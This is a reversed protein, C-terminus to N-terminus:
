SGKSPRHSTPAGSSGPRYTLLVWVVHGDKHFYRKEKQYTEIEGALMRRVQEVDAELDDPHTIDQFTKGLLEGESYGLIKCLSRNVQLWRGDTGVLAMGIAADRFASGFRQESEELAKEARKHDTVDRWNILIGRVTGDVLLNTGTVEVQRWSGDRKGMRVGLALTDGPRRLAEAFTSRARPLDDPHLLDFCSRGMREQPRYGLMREISPSVYRVVGEADVVTVVDSTNQVVALLWREGEKSPGKARERSDQM